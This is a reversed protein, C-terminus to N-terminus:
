RDSMNMMGGISVVTGPYPRDIQWCIMSDFGYTDDLTQWYVGSFLQLRTLDIQGGSSTLQAARLHNFDTGFSIGQTLHLLAGFQAIRRKRSLGIGLQSRSQDQTDPRLIQGQSTFSFGVVAPVVLRGAPGDIYTALSGYATTASISQLYTTTFLDNPSEDIPVTVSGSSILFDGLDVGGCTVACTSGNLSWLGYFTLTKGSIVGGTPVLGDDVFWGDQIGQADVNFISQMFEVHRLDDIEQVMALTDISGDVSPGVCMSEVLNGNSFDHRHWGVFKAPQSSYLSDREYTAGALSGDAMRAWLISILEQQFRIEQVGSTTLHKARETLSPAIYKGSLADPFFELVTQNFRQVFSITLQTAQPEINSSGYHTDHSAHINTPTIPGPTPAVILWEGAQTGAVIGANQGIMWFIPNVDDSNFIYSIANNDFVSGDAETPAMDFIVNPRSADVRNDIAGSLWLRGQFYVGCTPYGTTGSYV